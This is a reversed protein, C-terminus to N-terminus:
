GFTVLLAGGVGLIIGLARRTNIVERLFLAAFIFVFINSMQNLAAAISAQTYKMGGLWLILSLYTGLFSGALMYGWSKQLLLTGMIRRRRPHLLLVICLVVMGGVLRVETVWLLSAEELLHKIMVIGVAVTVMAMIGWFIGRVLDRKPSSGASRRHAAIVVAAIIIFVGLMQLWKLREGLWIFSLLIIFPSYLCDVSASMGAGLLNLSKFFMTDSIGIGIAGSCLLLLYDEFSAPPLLRSGALLMTPLVLILALLNKFVNLAIPNATEGSKKFLIVSFGWTLATTLALIEGLYPVSPEPM